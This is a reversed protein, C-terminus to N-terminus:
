NRINFVMMKIFKRMTWYLILIQLWQIDHAIQLTVDSDSRIFMRPYTQDAIIRKIWLVLSLNDSFMFLKRNPPIMIQYTKLFLCFIWVQWCVMLKMTIRIWINMLGRLQGRYGKSNSPTLEQWFALHGSKIKSDVM